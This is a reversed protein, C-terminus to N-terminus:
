LYFRAVLGLGSLEILWIVGFMGLVLFRAFPLLDCVCGLLHCRTAGVVGNSVILRFSIIM